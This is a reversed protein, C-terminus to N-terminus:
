RIARRALGLTAAACGAGLAASVALVLLPFRWSYGRVGVPTRLMDIVILLLPLAVGGLAGWVATRATSLNEITRRREAAALVVAFVGGSLAGWMTWATVFNLLAVPRGLVDYPQPPRSGAYLGLAVGLPLWVLAWFLAISLAARFRRLM